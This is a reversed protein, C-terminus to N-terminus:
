ILGRQCDSAKLNKASLSTNRPLMVHIGRWVVEAWGKDVATCEVTDGRMLKGVIESNGSPYKRLNLASAKVMGINDKAVSISSFLFLMGILVLYRVGFLAKIIGLLKM